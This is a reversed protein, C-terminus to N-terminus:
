GSSWAVGEELGEGPPSSAFMTEADGVQKRTGIRRSRLRSRMVSTAQTLGPPARPRRQAVDPAESM